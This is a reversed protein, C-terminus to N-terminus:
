NHQEHQIGQKGPLVKLLKEPGTEDRRWPYVGKPFDEPIFLRRDDPIGEVRVGMMEQVERESFIAGPILDTITPISLDTKPLTVRIILAIAKLHQGYFLSFHYQLDVTDGRDVPAIVTFHPNEQLRCLHKVATLFGDRKVDLWLSTYTNKKLAFEREYVRTDALAGDLASQFGKIVQQADMTDM